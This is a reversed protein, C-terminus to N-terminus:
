ISEIEILARQRIRNLLLNAADNIKNIRMKKELNRKISEFSVKIRPECLMISHLGQQTEIVKSLKGVKLGDQIVSLFKKDISNESLIGLKGGKSDKNNKIVYELEACGNVNERLDKLSKTFTPHKDKNNKTIQFFIQSLNYLIENELIRKTKRKDNILYIHYGISSKIPKTIEGIKAAKILETTQNNLMSERIWSNVNIAGDSFQQAMSNFNSINVESLISNLKEGSLLSSNNAGLSIFIESINYETEGSNKIFNEFSEEMQKETVSINNAVTSSVMKNWLLTSRIQNYIVTESINKEKFTSILTNPQMSLNTELRSIEDYVEQSSILIGLKGAAQIKLNEDILINLIQSKLQEKIESNNPLKAIALALNLRNELDINTIVENNVKAVIEIKTAFAKQYNVIILILLYISIIKKM